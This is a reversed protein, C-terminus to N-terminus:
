SPGSTSGSIRGPNGDFLLPTGSHTHSSLGTSGVTVESTGTVNAATINGTVTVNGNVTMNGIHTTTATIDLDSKAEIEIKGSNTFKVKADTDPHYVAVEGESLGDLM